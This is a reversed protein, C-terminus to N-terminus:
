EESNSILLGFVDNGIDFPNRKKGNWPNYLWAVNGHYSRYQKASSPYPKKSGDVPDFKLLAGQRSVNTCNVEVELERLANAILSQLVTESQINSVYNGTRWKQVVELAKEDIDM